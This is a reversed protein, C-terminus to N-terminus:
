SKTTEGDSGLTDMEFHFDVSVAYCDDNNTDGAGDRYLRCIIVASLGLSAGDITGLGLIEHKFATGSPTYQATLLDTDGFTGNVPALTYELGWDMTTTATGASALHVHPKVDTGVKYSHPLQLDFFLEKLLNGVFKFAFVGTSGAGDDKFQVFAPPTSGPRAVAVSVAKDTWATFCPTALPIRIIAM